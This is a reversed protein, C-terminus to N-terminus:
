LLKFCIKSKNNFSCFSFSLMFWEMTMAKLASEEFVRILSALDLNDLSIVFLLIYSCIGLDIHRCWNNLWDLWKNGFLSTPTIIHNQLENLVSFEVEGTQFKDTLHLNWM